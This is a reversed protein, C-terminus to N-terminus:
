AFNMGDRVVGIKFELDGARLPDDGDVGGVLVGELAVLLTDAVGRGEDLGLLEQGVEHGLCSGVVGLFRLFDLAGELRVFVGLHDHHVILPVGHSNAGLEGGFLFARDDVEKTHIKVYERPLGRVHRSYRPFDGLVGQVDLGATPRDLLSKAAEVIGFPLRDGLFYVFKQRGAEDLLHIM